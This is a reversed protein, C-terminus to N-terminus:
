EQVWVSVSGGNCRFEGWGHENTEVPERVHETLDVFRARPKGVDMWRTGEPGDSMLVAMAKPHAADGLRTWGVRNWHDLYDYQPGWAYHRRAHLFRDILWRHSPLVVHHRRGDRGQDEYAAGYYDPYFLCPYGEQRLLILAYALPKFWPEVTSELAQLPQSDHNDVFSVVQPSRQQLLTGEIIRRMDYHGGGHSAYHLAYHLPVGFVHLRGGLADLYWHLSAVDPTWYEGVVFLDKGAHREMADLWQPFFWAAIHKVADLRFGDVGTTDLYWKGWATVENRVEESQFDLDCGMLYAYNGRELAVQDDFSKGELLYVTNVAGPDLADYDVADFHRWRWEFQSHAKRRGPFHFHTYCRIDRLGSRPRLRDDQPYPTARAPEAADGGMRHNLVVDAYVQMGARQAAQVAALYQERTGYKTRRSGKQEFEGLDYMDYVGYGVDRSGGTGKYAPPLWLATIGAAALESARAAVEDWLSGDDPTYWHFYQMMVGNQFAV